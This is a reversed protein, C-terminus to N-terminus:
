PPPDLNIMLLNILQDIQGIADNAAGDVWLDNSRMTQVGALVVKLWEQSFGVFVFDGVDPPNTPLTFLEQLM